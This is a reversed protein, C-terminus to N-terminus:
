TRMFTNPAISSPRHAIPSRRDADIAFVEVRRVAM